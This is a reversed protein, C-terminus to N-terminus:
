SARELEALAERIEQQQHERREAAQQAMAEQISRERSADEAAWRERFEREKRLRLLEKGREIREEYERHARQAAEAAAFQAPRPDTDTELLHAALREPSYGACTVAMGLAQVPSVGHVYGGFAKCVEHARQQAEPVARLLTGIPIPTPAFDKSAELLHGLVRAVGLARFRDGGAEAAEDDWQKGLAIVRLAISHALSNLAELDQAIPKIEPKM